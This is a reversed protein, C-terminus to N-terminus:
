TAEMHKGHQGPRVKMFDTMAEQLWQRREPTFEEGGGNVGSGQRAGDQHTMSWEFLGACPLQM